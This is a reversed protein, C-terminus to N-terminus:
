KKKKEVTPETTPPPESTPEVTPEVTPETTPPPDSTILNPLFFGQKPFKHGTLM